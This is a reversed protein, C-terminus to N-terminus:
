VMVRRVNCLWMLGRVAVFLWLVVVTKTNCLVLVLLGIIGEVLIAVSRVFAAAVPENEGHFPYLM